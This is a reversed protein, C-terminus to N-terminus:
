DTYRLWLHSSPKTLQEFLTDFMQHDDDDINYLMSLDKYLGSRQEQTLPTNRFFGLYSAGVGMLFYDYKEQLRKAVAFNDMPSLDCTFYGNPFACLADYRNQVPVLMAYIPFDFISFPNCQYGRWEEVNEEALSLGKECAQEFSAEKVAHQFNHQCIFFEEPTNLYGLYEGDEFCSEPLSSLDMGASESLDLSMGAHGSTYCAQPVDDLTLLM